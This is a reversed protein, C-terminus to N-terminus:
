ELGLRAAREEIELAAAITGALVLLVAHGRSRLRAVAELLQTLRKATNLHGFCGVVTRDRSPLPISRRAPPTWAPHPIQWVPGEYRRMRVHRGVYSSHVIVGDARALVPDVLPFDQPRTEWLPPLSGDLVGHGLLRGAIGAEAELARLYAEGDGAG